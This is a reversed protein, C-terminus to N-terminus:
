SNIINNLANQLEEREADTLHTKLKANIEQLTAIKKKEEKSKLAAVVAWGVGILATAATAIAAISALM